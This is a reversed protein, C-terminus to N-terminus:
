KNFKKTQAESLVTQFPKTEIAPTASSTATTTGTVFEKARVTGRHGGIGAAWPLIAERILVEFLTGWWPVVAAATALAFVAAQAHEKPQDPFLNALIAVGISYIGTWFAGAQNVLKPVRRVIWNGLGVMVVKVWFSNLFALIAAILAEM